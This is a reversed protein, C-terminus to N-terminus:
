SFFDKGRECFVAEVGWEGHYRLECSIIRHGAQFQFLPERTPAPKPPPKPWRTLDFPDNPM